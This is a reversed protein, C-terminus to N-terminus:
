RPDENSNGLRLELDTKAPDFPFYMCMCEAGEHEMLAITDHPVPARACAQVQDEHDFFNKAWWCFAAWAISLGGVVWKAAFLAAFGILLATLFLIRM